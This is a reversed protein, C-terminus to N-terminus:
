LQQLTLSTTDTKRMNTKGPMVHGRAAPPWYWISSQNTTVHNNALQNAAYDATSQAM